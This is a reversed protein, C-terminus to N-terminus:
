AERSSATLRKRAISLVTGTSESIVGDQINGTGIMGAFHDLTGVNVTTSASLGSRNAFDKTIPGLVTCPEVLPPLQSLTVGCYSLIDPWYQKKTIDFYHSFNYISYEGALEGTLKLQIFDKLLLYKDIKEYRSPEHERLWLIKTIPWTPIIEPQGTTKFCIEANFTKKLEECEDRSRMDLWSIGNRVPSGNEDIAILSEAQGTLVIQRIPYPTSSFSKQCCRQMAAAVNDFYEDADFEVIDGKGLYEVNESELTLMNLEDDYAAVKINTTGLDISLIGM